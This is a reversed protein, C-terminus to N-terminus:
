IGRPSRHLTGRKHRAYFALAAPLFMYCANVAPWWVGHTELYWGASLALICTYPFRLLPFSRQVDGLLQKLLPTSAEIVLHTM